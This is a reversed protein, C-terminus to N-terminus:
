FFTSYNDNVKSNEVHNVSETYIEEKNNFGLRHMGTDIKIHAKINYNQKSLQVSYDYDILTQTLDFACLEKARIPSTYGLILIEGDIGYKRLKIGEDITAM